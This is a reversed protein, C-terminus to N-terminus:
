GAYWSTRRSCPAPGRSRFGETCGSSHETFLLLFLKRVKGPPGWRGGGVTLNAKGGDTNVCGTEWHAFGPFCGGTGCRVAWPRKRDLHSRKGDIHATSHTVALGEIRGTFGKAFAGTTM